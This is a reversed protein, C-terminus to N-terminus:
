RVTAERTPSNGAQWLSTQPTQARFVFHRGLTLPSSRYVYRYTGNANVRIAHGVAEWENGAKTEIIVLPRPPGLPSIAVRGSFVLRAAGPAGVRLGVMPSVSESIAVGAGAGADAATPGYVIRLVRSPGKPAHLVWDGAADSTTHALVLLGGAPPSGQQAVVSVAVGPAPTGDTDRLQGSLTLGSEEYPRMVRKGLAATQKGLVIAYTPEVSSVNTLRSSLLSSVTTRNVTSIAGDYVVSSNQGADTVTVKLTHGGDSLTTTNVPLDVVESQKCPQLEEFELSGNAYTGVSACAGENGNPTGQYVTAGDIQVSVLYVGPGGPDTATFRLDATGHADGELLSGGFGGASPSVESNIVFDASLVDALTEPSAGQSGACEYGGPGGDCAVGVTVWSVGSLPGAAIEVNQSGYGLNRYDYDPDAQGTHNVWVEGFGTACQNSAIACPGSDALLRMAYSGISFGAPVSFTIAGSSNTPYGSDPNPGLALSLGGAGSGACGDQYSIFPASPPDQSWGADGPCSVVTYKGAFAVSVALLAVTVGTAVALLLLVGTRRALEWRRPARVLTGGAARWPGSSGALTLVRARGSRM